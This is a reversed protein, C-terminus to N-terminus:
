DTKSAFFIPKQTGSFLYLFGGSPAPVGSVGKGRLVEGAGIWGFRDAGRASLAPLTVQQLREQEELVALYEPRTWSSPARFDLSTAHDTDDGVAQALVVNDHANILFFGGYAAFWLDASASIDLFTKGFREGLTKHSLGRM